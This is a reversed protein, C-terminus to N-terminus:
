LGPPLDPEIVRVHCILEPIGIDGRFEMCAGGLFQDLCACEESILPIIGAIGVIRHPYMQVKGDHFISAGPLEFVFQIDISREVGGRIQSVRQVPIFIV